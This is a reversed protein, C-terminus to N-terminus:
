RRPSALVLSGWRARIEELSEQIAGLDFWQHMLELSRAPDLELGEARLIMIGIAEITEHFGAAEEHRRAIESVDVGGGAALLAEVAALAAVNATMQPTKTELERALGTKMARDRQICRDLRGTLDKEM